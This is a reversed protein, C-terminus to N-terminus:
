AKKKELEAHIALVEKAPKKNYLPETNNDSPLYELLNVQKDIERLQAYYLSLTTERKTKSKCIQTMHLQLRKIFGEASYFEKIITANEDM